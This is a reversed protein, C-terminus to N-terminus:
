EALVKAGGLLEGPEIRPAPDAAASKKYTVIASEESRTLKLSGDGTLLVAIKAGGTLLGLAEFRTATIAATAGGTFRGSQALVVRGGPAHVTLKSAGAVYGGLTVKGNPANVAVAAEGNLDGTIQVEEATLGSADVSGKGHVSGLRLVRVRGTLVVRDDTGVDVVAAIDDPRDFHRQPAIRPEVRMVVAVPRPGDKRPPHVVPEPAPGKDGPPGDKQPPADGPPRPAEKGGTPPQPTGAGTAAEPGSTPRTPEPTTGGGPRLADPARAAGGGRDAFEDTKPDPRTLLVLSAVGAGALFAVAGVVVALRAAGAGAGSGPRGLLIPGDFPFGCAPCHGADLAADPAAHRCKPCTLTTM